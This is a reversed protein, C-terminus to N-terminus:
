CDGLRRATTTSRMEMTQGGFSMTMTMKGSGTKGDTTYEGTMTGSGGDMNCAMTFTLTNGKLKSQTVKCNDNPGMMSEPDFENEELCETRTQSQTGTFPNTMEFTTEWLGPKLKLADAFAPLAIAAFLGTLAFAIPRKM